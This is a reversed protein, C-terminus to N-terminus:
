EVPEWDRASIITDLVDAISKVMEVLYPRCLNYDDQDAFRRITAIATQMEKITPQTAMTKRRLRFMYDDLQEAQEGM